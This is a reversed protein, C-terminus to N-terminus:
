LLQSLFAGLDNTHHQLHPEDKADPAVLVTKLGMDHPVKLNRHDDEFMAAKTPDLGDKAFVTEFAMREPKPFYGAHEIGYIKEFPASLGRAALVNRAYSASGNTYVIKRGPLDAIMDALQPDPDLVSFDIDHVEHLYPDPDIDHVRMLGALTTGYDRWYTARLRDAEAQDVGVERMVYRTMRDEIQDFLRMEPPYLTHDLDFVWTTVHSFAHKPM